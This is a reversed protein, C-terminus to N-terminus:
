FSFLCAQATEPRLYVASSSVIEEIGKRIEKGDLDQNKEVYSTIEGLVDVPGIQSRFMLNFKREDSLFPSGFTPGM